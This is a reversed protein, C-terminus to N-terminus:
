LIGRYCTSIPCGLCRGNIYRSCECCNFGCPLKGKTKDKVIRLPIYGPYVLESIVFVESRRIGKSTRLACVSVISELVNMDEAVALALVNYGGILTALFIIRPCAKFRSVLRKVDDYGEAEILILVLKLNLRKPNILAKVSIVNDKLLKDLHKKVGTHSIGLKSAMDVLSSRGDEQLM